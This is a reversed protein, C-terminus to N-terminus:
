VLIPPFSFFIHNEGLPLSPVRSSFIEPRHSIPTRRHGRRFSEFLLPQSSAMDPFPIALDFLFGIALAIRLFTPPPRALDLWLLFVRFALCLLRPDLM